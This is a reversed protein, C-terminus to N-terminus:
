HEGNSEVEQVIGEDQENLQDNIKEIADHIPNRIEHGMWKNYITNLEAAIDAM